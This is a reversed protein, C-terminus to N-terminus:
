FTTTDCIRMRFIRSVRSYVVVPLSLINAAEIACDLAPNDFAREARQMWYVVTKGTLNPAGDRRVTVRDGSALQRLAEPLEPSLKAVAAARRDEAESGPQAAAKRRGSSERTKEGSKQQRVAKSAARIAKERAPHRSLAQPDGESLGKAAEDNGAEGPPAAVSDRQNANSKAM